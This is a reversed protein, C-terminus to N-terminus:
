EANTEGEGNEFRDKCVECMFKNGQGEVNCLFIGEAEDFAHGCGVCFGLSKYRLGMGQRASKFRGWLMYPKPQVWNVTVTM